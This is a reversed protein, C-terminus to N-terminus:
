LSLRFGTRLTRGPSGYGWVTQYDVDLLNDVRAFLEIGSGLTKTLALDLLVYGPLAVTPYPFAGYDRDLRRGVWLARAALDLGRFVRFGAEASFKDRPRRMLEEGSGLDHAALRTYSVLFRSGGGAPRLEASAELGRTRARGINVYGAAYDFDVLDRFSNEFWTIGLLARGGALSQEFGADWGLAHEPRLLPNGVPGFSTAPAFLQYLSPSTFGSGLSAKLRTGTAAVLYAPAV